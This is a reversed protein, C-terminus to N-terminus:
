PAHTGEQFLSWSSGYKRLEFWRIGALNSGDVDVTFNGLLTQHVGFNRYVLRWMPWESVADVREGPAPQPICELNFYGCVTYNFPTLNLNQTRTFSSAAPNTFNVRFEWIELRDPGSIGYNLDWFRDDMFTYFYNPSGPPPPNIGDLDSPLMFNINAIEFKQYTAPQGTLMKTRDFAYAGVLSENASM